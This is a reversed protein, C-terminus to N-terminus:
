GPGLGRVEREAEAHWGLEGLFRWTFDRKAGFAELGVDFERAWEQLLGVDEELALWAEEGVRGGRKRSAGPSQPLAPSTARSDGKLPLQSGLLLPQSYGCGGGPRERLTRLKRVLTGRERPQGRALTQALCHYAPRAMEM